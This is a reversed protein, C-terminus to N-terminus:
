LNGPLLPKKELWIAGAVEVVLGGLDLRGLGRGEVRIEARGLPPYPTWMHDTWYRGEARALGSIRIRTEPPVWGSGLMRAM